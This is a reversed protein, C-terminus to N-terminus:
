ECNKISSLVLATCTDTGAEGNISDKSGGVIVDNGKGGKVVSLGGSVLCDKGDNGKIVDGGVGIILDRGSTGNLVEGFQTGVIVHDFVMGNCQAPITVAGAPTALLSLTLAVSSGAILIRKLLRIM